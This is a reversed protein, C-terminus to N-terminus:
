RETPRRNTITESNPKDDNATQSNAPPRILESWQNIRRGARPIERPRPKVEPVQTEPTNKLNTNQPSIAAMDGNQISDTQDESGWNSTSSAAETERNM